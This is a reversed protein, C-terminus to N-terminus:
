RIEYREGINFFFLFFVHNGESTMSSPSSIRKTGLM